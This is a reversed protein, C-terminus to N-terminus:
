VQITNQWAGFTVGSVAVGSSNTYARVCDPHMTLLDAYDIDAPRVVPGLMVLDSVNEKQYYSFM